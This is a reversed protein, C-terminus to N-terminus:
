IFDFSIIKLRQLANQIGDEEIRDTVIDAKEKILDVANGMAVGIGAYEIMDVDNEGDGFAISDERTMGLFELVKRIGSAKNIGAQTIEGSSRKDQLFSMDVVDFETGLRERVDQVSLKGDYFLVKEVNSFQNMSDVLEMNPFVSALQKENLKNRDRMLQLLPQFVDKGTALHDVCQMAYLLNEERILRFIKDLKAESMFHSDIVQGHYQVYAGAACVYGDLPLELLERHLQGMSRGTCLLLQHGNAKAQKLAEFASAPITADFNALTGDVDFFLVKQKM